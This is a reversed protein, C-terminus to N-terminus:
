IMQYTIGMVALIYLVLLTCIVLLVASMNVGGRHALAYHYEPSGSSFHGHEKTARIEKIVQRCYAKNFFFGCFISILLTVTRFISAAGVLQQVAPSNLNMIAEMMADVTVMGGSTMLESFLLSVYWFTPLISAITIALLVTGLRYMKRYFCYFFSFFFAPLNVSIRLGPEMLQRFRTLFVHGNPGVYDCVEQWSVGPSLEQDDEAFINMFWQPNGAPSFGQGQQGARRYGPGQWPDPEPFPGAAPEPPFQGATLQQGCVQCFINGAPNHSGCRPCVATAQGASRGMDRFAEPDPAYSSWVEGASHKEEHACRGLERYCSRHHPAGCEPCVVIDDGQAFAKGCVPCHYGIYNAM